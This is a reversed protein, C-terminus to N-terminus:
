STFSLRSAMTLGFLVGHRFASFVIADPFAERAEKVPGFLVGHRFASFVMALKLLKSVKEDTRIPSWASLCQLSNLQEM